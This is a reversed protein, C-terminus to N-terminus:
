AAVKQPDKFGCRRLFRPLDQNLAEGIRAAVVRVEALKEDGFPKEDVRLEDVRSAIALEIKEVQNRNMM